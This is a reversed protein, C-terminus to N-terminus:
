SEFSKKQQDVFYDSQMKLIDVVGKKKYNILETEEQLSGYVDDNLKSVTKSQLDSQYANQTLRNKLGMERDGIKFDYESRPSILKALIPATEVALFLLMIFISPLAPLKDLAEVRAMLGDYQNITPQTEEIKKLQNAETTKQENEIAKIKIVNAAKLSDLQKLALDHKERKEKYVPGKGLKKTGATGEAETIFVSYLADVEKQKNAIEAKLSDAKAQGKLLDSAYFKTIENKQNLALQNKKDLLVTNIEKEFIKLELPKAIVIAIIIALAIRPLAQLFENMFGNSKRMTSVIFRDLNFILLGWIVGFGIALYPNDFVTYLAYSAAIFAMAATFFVTAGIGVYKNQEGDSCTNILPRDVGSCDIFFKKLM